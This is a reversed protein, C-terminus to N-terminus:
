GGIRYTSWSNGTWLYAWEAGCGEALQLFAMRNFSEAIELDEDRDRHYFTSEEITGELVSVGGMAVLRKALDESSYNEALTKGVGEPYGDWHSYISTVSGDPHLVGIRARTAM